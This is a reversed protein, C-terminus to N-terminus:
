YHRLISAEVDIIVDKWREIIFLSWTILILRVTCEKEARRSATLLKGQRFVSEDLTWRGWPRHPQSSHRRTPDYGVSDNSEAENVRLRGDYTRYTRTGSIGLAWCVYPVYATLYNKWLNPLFRFIRLNHLNVIPTPLLIISYLRGPLRLLGLTTTRSLCWDTRLM